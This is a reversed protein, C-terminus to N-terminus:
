SRLPTTVMLCCAVRASMCRKDSVLALLLVTKFFLADLPARCLPEFPAQSLVRLVTPLDWCPTLVQILPKVLRECSGRSLPIIFSRGVM